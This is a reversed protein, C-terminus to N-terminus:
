IPEHPYEQAISSILIVPVPTMVRATVGAFWFTVGGAPVVGNATVVVAFQVAVLSAAQHVTVGEPDPFPV